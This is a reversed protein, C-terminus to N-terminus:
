CRSRGGRRIRIARFSDWFMIRACFILTIPANAASRVKARAALQLPNKTLGVIEDKAMPGAEGAMSVPFVLLWTCICATPVLLSPLVVLSGETLQLTLGAVPIAVMLWVPSTVDEATPLAVTVAVEM